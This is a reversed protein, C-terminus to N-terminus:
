TPPTVEMNEAYQLRVYIVCVNRAKRVTCSSPPIWHSSHFCTIQIHGTASAQEHVNCVAVWATVVMISLRLYTVQAPQKFSSFKCCSSNRRLQCIASAILCCHLMALQAATFCTSLCFCIYYLSVVGFLDVCECKRKGRAHLVGYLAVAHLAAPPGVKLPVHSSLLQTELTGSRTQYTLSGEALVLPVRGLPCDQKGLLTVGLLCWGVIDTVAASSTM